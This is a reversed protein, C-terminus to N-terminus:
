GLLSCTNNIKLRLTFPLNPLRSGTIILDTQFSKLHLEPETPRKHLQKTVDCEHRFRVNNSDSLVKGFLSVPHVHESSFSPKLVIFMVTFSFVWFFKHYYIEYIVVSSKTVTSVDTFIHSTIKLSHPSHLRLINHIIVHNTCLRADRCLEWKM